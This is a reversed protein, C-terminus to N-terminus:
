VAYVVNDTSSRLMKSLLANVYVAEVIAAARGGELWSSDKSGREVGTGRIRDFSPSWISCLDSPHIRGVDESSVKSSIHRRNSSSPYRNILSRMGRSSTRSIRSCYALRSNRGASVLLVAVEREECVGINEFWPSRRTIGDEVGGLVREEVMAHATGRERFVL